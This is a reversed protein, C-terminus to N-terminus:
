LAGHKGPARQLLRQLLVHAFCGDRGFGIKKCRLFLGMKAALIPSVSTNTACADQSHPWRADQGNICDTTAFAGEGRSSIMYYTLPEPIGKPNEFCRRRWCSCAFGNGAGQRDIM